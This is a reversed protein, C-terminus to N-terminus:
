RSVWEASSQWVSRHTHGTVDAPLTDPHFAREAGTRDDALEAVLERARDRGRVLLTTESHLEHGTHAILDVRYPAGGTARVVSLVAGAVGLAVLEALVFPLAPLCVLGRGVLVVIAEQYVLPALLVDILRDGATKTEKPPEDVPPPPTSLKRGPNNRFLYATPRVVRRWPSFRREVTWTRGKADRVRARTM